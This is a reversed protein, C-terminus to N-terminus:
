KLLSAVENENFVIPKKPKREIRGLPENFFVWALNSSIPLNFLDLNNQSLTSM